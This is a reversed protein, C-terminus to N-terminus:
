TSRAADAWTEAFMMAKPHLGRGKDPIALEREFMARLSRSMRRRQEEGDARATALIVGDRSFGLANVRGVFEDIKGVRQKSPVGLAAYFQNAAREVFRATM